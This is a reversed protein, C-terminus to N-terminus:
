SLQRLIAARADGLRSFATPYRLAFMPVAQAAAAASRFCQATRKSDSLDLQFTNRVIQMCGTAPLLRSIEPEGGPTRMLVFCAGLPLSCRPADPESALVLRRKASYHAMPAVEPAEPYVGAVSEPWLRVSPYTPLVQVTGGQQELVLGDDSLVPHGADHFSATLTSKGAGTEGLFAVGRGGISVAGAHLVLSGRHALVRPLVQDLLLHRLTEETCGAEPWASIQAGDERIAFDALAPFRLLFSGRQRALSIETTTPSSRWHHVWDARPPEPVPAARLWVSLEPQSCEDGHAARLEPFPIESAIVRSAYRFLEM